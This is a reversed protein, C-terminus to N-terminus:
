FDTVRFIIKMLLLLFKIYVLQNLFRWGVQKTEIVQLCRPRSATKSKPTANLPQIPLNFPLHGIQPPFVHSKQQFINMPPFQPYPQFPPMSPLFPHPGHQPLNPPLTHYALMPSNVPSYTPMVPVAPPESSTYTLTQSFSRCTSTTERSSTECNKSDKLISSGSNGTNHHVQDETVNRQFSYSDKVMYEQPSPSFSSRNSPSRNKPRPSLARRMDRERSGRHFHGSDNNRKGYLREQIRHSMQGLEEFGLNMGIAQLVDQMQKHKYKDEPTVGSPSEVSSSSYSQEGDCRQLSKGDSLSRGNPSFSSRHQSQLSTLRWSGVDESRYRTNPHSLEQMATCNPSRPHDETSLSSSPFQARSNEKASTMIKNLM